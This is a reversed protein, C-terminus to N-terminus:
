CEYNEEKSLKLQMYLTKQYQLLYKSVDIIRDPDPYFYYFQERRGM